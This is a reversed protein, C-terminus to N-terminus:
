EGAVPPTATPGPGLGILERAIRVLDDPVFPKPLFATGGLIASSANHGGASTFLFAVNPSQNRAEEILEQSGPLTVDVVILRLGTGAVEIMRLCEEASGAEAVHHGLVQLMQGLLARVQDDGEVVLITPRATKTGTSNAGNSVIPLYVRFTLGSEPENVVQAQGGNQEVLSRVLALSLGNGGPQAPRLAFPEFVQSMAEDSLAPGSDTVTMLVQMEPGAEAPGTPRCYLPAIPPTPGPASARSTRVTLRGGNAMRGRAVLVLQFLVQEIFRPDALVLPLGPALVTFLEVVPGLLDRCARDQRVLLENLAFAVPSPPNRGGLLLLQDTFGRARKGARQVQSVQRHVPTDPTLRQLAMESFGSIVTLINNFDHAVGGALARIAGDREIQRSNTADRTVSLSQPTTGAPPATLARVTTEVWVYGGGRHRLRHNFKSGRGERLAGHAQQVLPREEPALLEYSCRGVLDAPEYGLLDRVAPSVFLCTAGADHLSITDPAQEVLWVYRQLQSRLEEEARRLRERDAEQSAYAARLQQLEAALEDKGKDHDDM